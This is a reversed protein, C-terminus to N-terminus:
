LQMFGVTNAKLILAMERQFTGYAMCLGHIPMKPTVVCQLDRYLFILITVFESGGKQSAKVCLDM